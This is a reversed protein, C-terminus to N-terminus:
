LGGYQGATSIGNYIIFVFFSIWLIIIAINLFKNWKLSKFSFISLIIILSIFFSIPLIYDIQGLASGKRSIPDTMIGIISITILVLSMGPITTSHSDKKLENEM